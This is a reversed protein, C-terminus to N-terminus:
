HMQPQKCVIVARKWTYAFDQTQGMDSRGWSHEYAQLAAVSWKMLADLAASSHTSKDYIHLPSVQQHWVFGFLSLYNYKVEM